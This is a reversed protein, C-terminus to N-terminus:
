SPKESLRMKSFLDSLTTKSVKRRRGKADIYELRKAIERYSLGEEKLRKVEEIDVLVKPRGLKKGNERAKRLGGKVRESIIDRELKAMASIITFMAEGMPSSTNKIFLGREVEEAGARGKGKLVLEEYVGNPILVQSFLDQLLHLKSARALTIIPGSDSVLIM